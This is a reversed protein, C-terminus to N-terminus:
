GRSKATKWGVLLLLCLLATGGVGVLWLVATLADPWFASVIAAISICFMQVGPSLLTWKKMRSRNLWWFSDASRQTAPPILSQQMQRLRVYRHWLKARFGDGRLLADHVRISMELLNERFEPAAGGAAIVYEARAGDFAFAQIPASAIAALGLPLIWLSGDIGTAACTTGALAFTVIAAGIGCQAARLRKRPLLQNDALQGASVSFLEAAVLFIGAWFRLLPHAAGGMLFLAAFTGTIASLAFLHFAGIFRRRRCFDLIPQAAPIFIRAYLAGDSQTQIVTRRKQSTLAPPVLAAASVSRVSSFWLGQRTNPAQTTPLQV